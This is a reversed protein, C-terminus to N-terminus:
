ASTAQIGDGIDNGGGAVTTIIGNSDVKRVRQNGYDVIYLNGSDDVALDDVYNLQADTALGGDGSFGSISNGAVTSIIGSNADVKRVQDYGGIYINGAGDVAMGTIILEAETAPGDDGSRGLNGNGAVTTIIGNLDVKRVRNSGQDAIYLNGADDFAVNDPFDLFAQTAQGGDGTIGGGGSVTIITGPEQAIVLGSWMLLLIFSRVLAVMSM